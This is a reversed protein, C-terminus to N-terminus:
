QTFMHVTHGNCAFHSLFYLLSDADSKANLKFMGRHFSNPRNLLSLQPCSTIPLTMVVVRRRMCRAEHLKKTFCWLVWTVGHGRCGLNPARRAKGWVLIVESLSSIDFCWYIWSFVVPCSIAIPLVTHPGLTGVKFPVSADNDETCYKKYRRWYTDGNKINCPQIGEPCVKYINLVLSNYM